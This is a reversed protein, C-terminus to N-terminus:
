EVFNDLVSPGFILEISFKNNTPVLRSASTAFLNTADNQLGHIANINFANFHMILNWVELQYGKIHPSLCHITNRVQRDVIESDRFVKLNIVKIEIAKKLGLVIVEYEHTNNVCKFELRCSLFQKNKDPDILTCGEGLGEQTKSGDFHMFWFVDELDVQNTDDGIKTM